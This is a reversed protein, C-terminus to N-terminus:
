FDDPFGITVVPEGDDGPHLSIFLEQQQIQTSKVSFLVSFHTDSVERKRAARLALSGMYLVDHARGRIDQSCQHEDPISEISCWLQRTLAVSCTFGGLFGKDASAWETVDVLEGDSLADARTYAYILESNGFLQTEDDNDHTM